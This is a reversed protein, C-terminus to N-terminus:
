ALRARVGKSSLKARLCVPMLGRMLLREQMGAVDRATGIVQWGKSLLLRGLTKGTFGMGFCFLKKNMHGRKLEQYASSDAARTPGAGRGTPLLGGM